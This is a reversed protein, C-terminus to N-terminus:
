SLLLNMSSFFGSNIKLSKKLSAELVARWQQCLSTKRITRIPFKNPLFSQREDQAEGNDQIGSYEQDQQASTLYKATNQTYQCSAREKDKHNTKRTSLIGPERQLALLQVCECTQSALTQEHLRTLLQVATRHLKNDSNKEESHKAVADQRTRQYTPMNTKYMASWGQKLFPWLEEHLCVYRKMLPQLFCNKKHSPRPAKM